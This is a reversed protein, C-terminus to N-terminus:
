DGSPSVGLVEDAFVGLEEATDGAAAHRYQAAIVQLKQDTTLTPRTVSLLDLADCVIAICQEKQEDTLVIITDNDDDPQQEM